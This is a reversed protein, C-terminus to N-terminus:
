SKVIASYSGGSGLRSKLPLAGFDRNFLLSFPRLVFCEKYPWNFIQLALFSIDRKRRNEFRIIRGPVGSITM